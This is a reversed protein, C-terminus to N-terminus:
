GSETASSIYTPNGDEIFVLDQLYMGLYPVFQAGTQAAKQIAERLSKYSKASSLLTSMENFSKKCSSTIHDWSDRLRTVASQQLGAM